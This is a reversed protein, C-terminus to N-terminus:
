SSRVSLSACVGVRLYPSHTHLSKEIFKEVHDKSHLRSRPVRLVLRLLSGM